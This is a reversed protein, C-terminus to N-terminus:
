FRYGVGVHGMALLDASDLDTYHGSLEVLISFRKTMKFDGTVGLAIGLADESPFEPLEDDELGYWGLGIYIGSTYYGENFLYEGGITAYTMDSGERGGPGEDFALEGYRVGVLIDHDSVWSFGLQYTGNGWSGGGDSDAGGIGYFVTARFPYRDQAEAAGAIAILLLTTLALHLSLRRRRM